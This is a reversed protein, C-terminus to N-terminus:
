RPRRLEPKGRERGRGLSDDELQGRGLASRATRGARGFRGMDVAVVLAGHCIQGPGAQGHLKVEVHPAEHAAVRGTRADGKGLRSDDVGALWQEKAVSQPNM